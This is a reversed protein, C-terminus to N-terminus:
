RLLQCLHRLLGAMLCSLSGALLSINSFSPIQLLSSKFKDTQKDIQSTRVYFLRRCFVPPSLSCVLGLSGLGASINTVFALAALITRRGLRMAQWFRFGMVRAPVRDTPLYTYPVTNYHRCQQRYTTV